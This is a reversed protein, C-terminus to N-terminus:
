SKGRKHQIIHVLIGAVFLLASITHLIMVGFVGQFPHLLIGSVFVLILTITLWWNVLKISLKEKIKM